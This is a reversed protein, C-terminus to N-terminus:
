KRPCVKRLKGCQSGSRKRECNEPLCHVDPRQPHPGSRCPLGARQRSDPFSTQLRVQGLVRQLHHSHGHSRLSNHTTAYFCEDLAAFLIFKYFIFICHLDSIQGNSIQDKQLNRFLQAKAIAIGNLFWVM